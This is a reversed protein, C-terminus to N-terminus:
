VSFGDPRPILVHVCGEADICDEADNSVQRAKEKAEETKRLDEKWSNMSSRLREALYKGVEKGATRLVEEFDEIQGIACLVANSLRYNRERSFALFQDWLLADIIPMVKRMFRLAANEDTFIQKRKGFQLAIEEIELDKIRTRIALKEKALRSKEAKEKELRKLRRVENDEIQASLDKPVSQLHLRRLTDKGLRPFGRRELEKGMKRYGMGTSHLHVITEILKEDHKELLRGQM